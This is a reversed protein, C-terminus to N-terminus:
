SGAATEELITLTQGTDVQDGESVPIAAVRGDAPADISHEMKMAEIVVLAQGATVEQGVVALVRVVKGPMPALLSGPDVTVEPLPLLPHEVLAISGLPSDVYIAHDHHAVQYTRRVGRWELDVLDARGHHLTAPDAQSGDISLEVAQGDIRYGVEVTEAGIDFTTTNLQSPNNRWGSPLTALTSAAAKRRAQGALAAAVAHQIAVDRDDGSACLQSPPHRDLFGTDTAGSVFEAHELIGVLLARNNRPGHLAATRLAKALRRAADDRTPGHAIVKAILPDYHVSIESGDEVGSDIRVDAVDFRHVTGTAPLYDNTPDEAYLRAEIAHGSITANLAAPPLPAGEAIEIQLRVLDLGTIAETVPHEVQLRTNMELFWFAGSDDLMFEVTGAGVYNVSRAAALAAAGMRERLDPDVAPSPAEEIVKQHRRQISCDREFLHVITGHTDGFVQIEIHRPNLLYKELFVTDDGFAAQAERAAGTVAADLDDPSGVIRMGKGGGGASAKVLVPYGLGDAAAAVDLEATIEFSALNPVGAEEMRRKSELKSGMTEIAEPSPGIFTMGAAECAKALSANEALFGYGPHIADAGTSTAAGIIKDIDLYSASPEPDGIPVAVDADAVFPAHADASSYVAVTGIGMERCTRFVRRAIEGRNAVLVRRIM